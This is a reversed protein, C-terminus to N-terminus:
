SESVLGNMIYRIGAYAIPGSLFKEITFYRFPLTELPVDMSSKIPNAM